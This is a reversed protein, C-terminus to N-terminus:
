KEGLLILKLYKNKRVIQIIFYSVALMGIASVLCIVYNYFWVDLSTGEFINLKNIIVLGFYNIFIVIMRHFVYIGLTCTGIESLCKMIRTEKRHKFLCRMLMIATMGGSIGILTRVAYIGLANANWGFLHNYMNYDPIRYLSILVSYIIVSSVTIVKQNCVFIKEYKYILLGTLFYPFTSICHVYDLYEAPIMLIGTLWIIGAMRKWRWLLIFATTIIYFVFLAKLFWYSTCCYGLLSILGKNFEQHRLFILLIGVIFYTSISPLLLQRAKKCIIEIFRSKFVSRAFYGSVMMFLPMHFSYIFDGTECQMFRGTDKYFFQM